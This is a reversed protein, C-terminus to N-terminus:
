LKKFPIRKKFVRDEYEIYDGLSHVQKSTWGRPQSRDIITSIATSFSFKTGLIEVVNDKIKEGEFLLNKAIGINRYDQTTHINSTINLIDENKLMFLRWSRHAFYASGTDDRYIDHSQIDAAHASMKDKSDYIFISLSSSELINSPNFGMGSYVMKIYAKKKNGSKDFLDVEHLETIFFPQILESEKIRKLFAETMASLGETLRVSNEEKVNELTIGTSEVVM